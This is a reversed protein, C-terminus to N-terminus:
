NSKDFISIKTWDASRLANLYRLSEQPKIYQANIQIIDFSYHKSSVENQFVKFETYPFDAFNIKQMAVGQNYAVFYLPKYEFFEGNKVWQEWVEIKTIRIDTYPEHIPLSGRASDLLAKNERLMKELQHILTSNAPNQIDRLVNFGVLKINEFQSLDETKKVRSMEKKLTKEAEVKNHFVKKGFQVLNFFYRRSRLAQWYTFYAPGNANTEIFSANLLDFTEEADVYGFLVVKGELDFDTLTFGFPFFQFRGKSNNWLEHIFMTRINKVSVKNTKEIEQLAEPSIVFKKQPSDYLRIEGSLIREYFFSAMSKVLNFGITDHQEASYLQILAPKYQYAEARKCHLGCIFLILLIFRNVATNNLLM